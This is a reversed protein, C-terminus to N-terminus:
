PFLISRQAPRLPTKKRGKNPAINPFGYTMWVEQSFSAILKVHLEPKTLLIKLFIKKGPRFPLWGPLFFPQNDEKAQSAKGLTHTM